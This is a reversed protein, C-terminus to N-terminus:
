KKVIRLSSTGTLSLTTIEAM